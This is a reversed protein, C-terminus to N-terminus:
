ELNGPLTTTDTPRQHQSNNVMFQERISIQRNYGAKFQRNGM